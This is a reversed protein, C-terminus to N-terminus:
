GKVNAVTVRGYVELHGSRIILSTGTHENSLSIDGSQHDNGVTIAFGNIEVIRDMDPVGPDGGWVSPDSWNGSAVAFNKLVDNVGISFVTGEFSMDAVWANTRRCRYDGSDSLAIRDFKLNVDTAGQIDQWQVGDHRQWQKQTHDGGADSALFIRDYEDVQLLEIRQDDNQPVCKLSSFPHTGPGTFLKELAAFDFHCSGLDLGLNSRNPHSKLEPLDNFMTNQANLLVLDAFELLFSPLAGELQTNGLHIERLSTLKGFSGPLAGSFSNSSIDLYTLKEYRSIWSPIEGQLKNNALNFYKLQPDTLTKIAPLDYSDITVTSPTLRGSLEPQNSMVAQTIRDGEEDTLRKLNAFPESSQGPVEGANIEVSSIGSFDDTSGQTQGSQRLHEEMIYEAKVVYVPLFGELQNDNIALAELAALGFISAPVAGSFENHHLQLEKLQGLKGLSSPINGILGNNNLRLSQLSQLDCLTAPLVGRMNIGTSNGTVLEIKQVDGNEIVLGYANGLGSLDRIKDWEKGRPWDNVVLNDRQITWNDGGTSEYLDRLAAIELWDPVRGQHGISEDNESSRRLQTGSRQPASKGTLRETGKGGPRLIMDPEDQKYEYARPVQATVADINVNLAFFVCMVMLRSTFGRIFSAKYFVHSNNLRFESM